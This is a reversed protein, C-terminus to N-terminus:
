IDDIKDEMVSMDGGFECFPILATKISECEGNTLHAVQQIPM